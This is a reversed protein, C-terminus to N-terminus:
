GRSLLRGLRDRFATEGLVGQAVHHPDVPDPVARTVLAFVERWFAWEGPSLATEPLRVYRGIFATHFEQFSEGRELYSQLLQSLDRNGRGMM